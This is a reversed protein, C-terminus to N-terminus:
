RHSSKAFFISIEWLCLLPKIGLKILFDQFTDLVYADFKAKMFLRLIRLHAVLLSLRSSVVLVTTELSM